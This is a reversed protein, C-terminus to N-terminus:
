GWHNRVDYEEDIGHSLFCNQFADLKVDVMSSTAAIYKGLFRSLASNIKICAIRASM